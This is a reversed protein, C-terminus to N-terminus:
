ENDEEEREDNEREFEKVCHDCLDETESYRHWKLSRDAGCHWCTM